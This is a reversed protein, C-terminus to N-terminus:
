ARSFVENYQEVIKSWNLKSEIQSRGKDGIEKNREENFLLSVIEDTFATYTEDSYSAFGLRNAGPSPLIIGGDLLRANGVPMAIWPLKCAQSELLVLPAVEKQSPFVFVSASNFAAVVHKRSIDHIFKINNGLQKMSNKVRKHLIRSPLFNVTSSIMVCQWNNQYIRKKLDSFVRLLHEQGKGPFYNSVCLIIKRDDLNYENRFNTKNNDFESIDVGNPIVCVDINNSVCKIYDQYNDSHTISTIKGARAKSLFTKFSGRNGVMHNMGVLAVSKTGPISEIHNLFDDWYNFCDSYILTHDPKHKKLQSVFGNKCPIYKVGEHDIKKNIFRSFISVDWKFYITLYQAIQHIVKESGGIHPFSHNCAIALKM